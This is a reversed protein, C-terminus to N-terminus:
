DLKFKYFVIEGDALFRINKNKLGVGNTIDLTIGNIDYKGHYYKLAGSPRYLHNIIPLYVPGGLSHGALLLNAKYNFNEAYDPCHSFVLTFNYDYTGEFANEFNPNGNIIPEIGVINIFSDNIYISRSQNNLINFDSLSLIETANPNLIDEDGLIAYKGYNTKLAKLQDKLYDLNANNNSILDGGFLIIDPKFDNLVEILKDLDKEDYNNGYHLDSFYAILLNDLGKNASTISIKEERIKLQKPNIILMNILLLSICLIVSIILIYLSKKKM